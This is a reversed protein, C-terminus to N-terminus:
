HGDGPAIFFLEQLVNLIETVRDYIELLDFATFRRESFVIDLPAVKVSVEAGTMSVNKPLRVRLIEEYTEPNLTEHASFEIDKLIMSSGSALHLRVIPPAELTMVGAHISQHKDVNSLWNLRALPDNGGGGHYPQLGEILTVAEPPIGYVPSVEGKRLTHAVLKTWDEETRCIPFATQERPKRDLTKVTLAYVTEDLVSRLDHVYEGLLVGWDPTDHPAKGEFVYHTPKDLPDFEGRFFKPNPERLLKRYEDLAKLHKYARATKTWHGWFPNTM